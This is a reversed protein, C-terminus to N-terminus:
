PNNYYLWLWYPYTHGGASCAADNPNAPTPTGYCYWNGLMEITQQDWTEAPKGTRRWIEEAHARNFVAMGIIADPVLRRDPAHGDSFNLQPAVGNDWTSRLFQAVGRVDSGAACQTYACTNYGYGRVIDPDNGLRTSANDVKGEWWNNTSYHAVEADSYSLAGGAEVRVFARILAIPINTRQAAQQMIQELSAAIPVTISGGGGGSSRLVTLQANNIVWSNDAAATPTVTLSILRPNNPTIGDVRWQVSRSSTTCTGGNCTAGESSRFIVNQPLTDTVVVDASGQGTNTVTLTYTIDQDNDVRTPGAKQVNAQLSVLTGGKGCPENVGCLVTNELDRVQTQNPPSGLASNLIGTGVMISAIVALVIAFTSSSAAAVGRVALRSLNKANIPNIKSALKGVNARPRIGTLGINSGSTPSRFPIIQNAANGVTQTITRVAPDRGRIIALNGFHEAEAAVSQFQARATPSLHLRTPHPIIAGPLSEHGPNDTARIVELGTALPRDNPGFLISNKPGTLPQGQPGVLTGPTQIAGATNLRNGEADTLFTQSTNVTGQSTLTEGTATTLVQPVYKEELGLEQLKQHTEPTAAPSSTITYSQKAGQIGKGPKSRVSGLFQDRGGRGAKQIIQDILDMKQQLPMSQLQALEEATLGGSQAFAKLAKDLIVSREGPVQAMYYIFSEMKEVYDKWFKRTPVKYNRLVTKQYKEAFNPSLSTLAGFYDWITKKDELFFQNETLRKMFGNPDARYQEVSNLASRVLRLQNEDM